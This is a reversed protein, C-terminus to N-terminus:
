RSEFPIFQFRQARRLEFVGQQQEIIAPPRVCIIKCAIRHFQSELGTGRNLEDRFRNGVSFQHLIKMSVIQGSEYREDAQMRLQFLSLVFIDFKRLVPAQRGFPCRLGAIFSIILTGGVIKNMSDSVLRM